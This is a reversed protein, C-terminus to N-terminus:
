TALVLVGQATSVSSCYGGTARERGTREREGEDYKTQVYIYYRCSEIYEERGM